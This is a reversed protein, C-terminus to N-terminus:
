CIQAIQVKPNYNILLHVYDSEGNFEVVRSEWKLGRPTFYKM